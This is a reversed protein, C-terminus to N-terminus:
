KSELSTRTSTLIKRLAERSRSQVTSRVFSRLFGSLSRTRARSVSLMYFAPGSGGEGADIAMTVTLGADLYHDAYIQNTAVLVTQSGAPRYIAQHSLRM